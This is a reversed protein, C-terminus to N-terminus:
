GRHAAILAALARGRHSVAQKQELTMEGMSLESGDPLFLPDYGFGSEGRPGELLQGTVEGRYEELKGDPYALVLVSVFKARRDTHRRMKELLLVNREVDSNVNGFRASYVGPQGGLALVEIGSDDALAPLGTAMAAACAKLAANEEYTSGTEEPLTVAGLGECQWGLPALAGQLERVKGANSTAVVVRRIQRRRGGTQQQM